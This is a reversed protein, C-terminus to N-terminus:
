NWQQLMSKGGAYDKGGSFRARSLIEGRPPFLAGAYLKWRNEFDTYNEGPPFVVGTYFKGGGTEPNFDNIPINGRERIVHTGNVTSSVELIL